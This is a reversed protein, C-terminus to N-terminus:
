RSVGKIRHLSSQRERRTPSAPSPACTSTAPLSRRFRRSSGRCTRCRSIDASRWTEYVMWLDADDNSRHVDYTGCGPEARSPAVLALLAHGLADSKGSQARIFALNTYSSM